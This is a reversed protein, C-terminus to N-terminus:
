LCKITNKGARKAMYMAADATELLINANQDEKLSSFGISATVQVLEGHVEFPESSIRELIKKLKNYIGDMDGFRFIIGFEEGGLRGVIDTEYVSSSLILGIRKLVVDGFGHGYTDNIKKFDDVDIVALFIKRGFEKAKKVERELIEMFYGRKYVQTLGDIKVSELLKKKISYKKLASDFQNLYFLVENEKVEKGSFLVAGMSLEFFYEFGGDIKRRSFDPLKVADGYIRTYGNEKIWVCILKLDFLEKLIREFADIVYFVDGSLAVSKIFAYTLIRNKEHVDFTKADLFLKEAYKKLSAEKNKLIKLSRKLKLKKYFQSVLIGAVVFGSPLIKFDGTYVFYVGLVAIFVFVFFSGYSLLIAGPLLVIFSDLVEKM